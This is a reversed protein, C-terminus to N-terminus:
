LIIGGALCVDNQYFAAIQGPAIGTVPHDFIVHAADEEKPHVKAATEPTQYRFKVQAQFGEQLSKGSIWNIGGVNIEQCLLQSKPGVVLTNQEFDKELVYVAQPSHIALGKRQGITYYALGQHIGVVEGQPNKIEGPHIRDPANRKLFGRYNGGGLFCLDQSEDRDAVPLKLERARSRVEDKTLEGLPFLSQRLKEQSLHSLVYSQDKHQDMAKRLFVKGNDDTDIRAYHGTALFQAGLLPLQSLLFEWRIKKNCVMCPNPTVGGTYGDIFYQVVQDRFIGGADVAYFPIDLKAAVKRAMAMADPSCCRNEMETGPENWLKLMIGTVRFGQELLLAAAVSSDVGGSMAIIM